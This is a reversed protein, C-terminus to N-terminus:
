GRKTSTRTQCTQSIGGLTYPCTDILHREWLGPEVEVEVVDGPELGPNCLSTVTLSAQVGLSDALRAQAVDTAQALDTIQASAYRGTRVRVGPLGLRQPALPDEVPDPGAYTLSDPDRDWAFAPGVVAGGDGADGTVAWLNVLGEATEERAPAATAYGAPIRWVVTDSLTPVPAM